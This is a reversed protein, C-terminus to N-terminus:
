ILKDFRLALSAGLSAFWFFGIFFFFALSAGKRFLALNLLIALYYFAVHYKILLASFYDLNMFFFNLVM